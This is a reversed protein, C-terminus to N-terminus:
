NDHIIQMHMLHLKAHTYIEYCDLSNTAALVSEIIKPLNCPMTCFLVYSIGSGVDGFPIKALNGDTDRFIDSSFVSCVEGGGASSNLSTSDSLFCSSSALLVILWSLFSNSCTCDSNLVTEFFIKNSQM